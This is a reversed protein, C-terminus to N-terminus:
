KASPKGRNGCSDRVVLDCNLLIDRAPMARHEIREIMARVAAAGIELCPQRVTTLPTALLHAYEVDDVGMVFVDEPIRIGLKQLSRMLTAATNDNACAFADPLKKTIQRVFDLNTPDGHRVWNQKARVGHNRLAQLFGQGRIAVTPASFPLGVYEIHSCGLGHLYEGQMYGIRHNDVGVLDFRSRRPYCEVDRDLLVVAIGADALEDATRRNVKDMEPTFEVPAFFVGLVRQEIFQRYVQRMCKLRSEADPGSVSSWLVHMDHRHGLRAIEGCIRGFIGAEGLFPTLLGLLKTQKAAPMRLFSGAGPRRELLGASELDRM